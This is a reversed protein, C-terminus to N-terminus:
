SGSMGYTGVSPLWWDFLESAIVSLWLWRIGCMARLYGAGCGNPSSGADPLPSSSASQSTCIGGAEAHALSPQNIRWAGWAALAPYVALYLALAVVAVYGLWIPMAAQFTFAVAIWNNGITFHGVGFLWGILAARRAPKPKRSWISSAACLLGADGAVPEATCLRDGVGRWRCACDLASLPAIFQPSKRCRRQKARAIHCICDNHTPM